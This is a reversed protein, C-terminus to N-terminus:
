PYFAGLFGTAGSLISAPEAVQELYATGPCIAPDLVAEANLDVVNVVVDAKSSGPILQDILLAALNAISPDEIFARIPLDVQLETRILSSVGNLLRTGPRLSQQIDPKSTSLGLVKAVKGQIYAILLEQRDSVPAEEL